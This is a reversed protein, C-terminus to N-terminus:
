YQEKKIESVVENFLERCCYGTPNLTECKEIVKGRYHGCINKWTFLHQHIAADKIQETDINNCYCIIKRKSGKKYWLERKLRAKDIIMEENYYAVNCDPNMCIYNKSNMGIKIRDNKRLNSNFVTNPVPEGKQKCGPCVPIVPLDKSTLGEFGTVKYHSENIKRIISEETIQTEDFKIDGSDTTHDIEKEIVGELEDILKEVSASCSACTM